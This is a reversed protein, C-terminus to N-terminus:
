TYATLKHMNEWQLGEGLKKGAWFRCSEGLVQFVWRLASQILRVTIPCYGSFVYSPDSPDSPDVGDVVLNLGRKLAQFSSKM